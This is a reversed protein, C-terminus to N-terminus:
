KAVKNEEGEQYPKRLFIAGLVLSLVYLAAYIQFAIDYSGFADFIKGSFLGALIPGAYLWLSVVGFIKGYDKGGMAHVTILPSLLNTCAFAIGFLVATVFALNENSINLLMYMGVVGISVLVLFNKYTGIVDNLWGFFIKAGAMSLSITSILTAAKEPSYGLDTLYASIHSFIGIAGSSLSFAIICVAWFKPTKFAQARTYGGKQSTELKKKAAAANTEAAEPDEDGYAVLGIDEPRYRFLFFTPLMCILAIIGLTRIAVQYGSAVILSSALPNFIASGFGSGTTAFGMAFGKKAHFWNNLVINTVVAGAFNSGFGVVIASAYIMPLSTAFSYGIWGCVVALIGCRVVVKPNFKEFVQGVFPSFGCVSISILSNAFAFQTRTLNFAECMPKLFQNFSNVCLGTVVATLLWVSVLLFWGYFIKNKKKGNEISM